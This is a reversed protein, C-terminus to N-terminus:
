GRSRRGFVVQGIIEPLLKRMGRLPRELYKPGALGFENGAKLQTLPGRRDPPLEHVKAAYSTNFSLEGVTRTRSERVFTATSAELNGTDVPTLEVAKAELVDLARSVAPGRQSLVGKGYDAMIARLRKVDVIGPGAM